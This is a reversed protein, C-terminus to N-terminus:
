ILYFGQNYQNVSCCQWKSCKKPRMIFTEMTKSVLVLGGLSGNEKHFQIKTTLVLKSLTLNLLGSQKTVEVTIMYHMKLQIMTM